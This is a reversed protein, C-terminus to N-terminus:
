PTLGLFAQVVPHSRVEDAAAPLSGPAVESGYLGAFWVLVNENWYVFGNPPECDELLPTVRFDAGIAWEARLADGDAYVWLAWVAYRANSGSDPGVFVIPEISAGACEPEFEDTLVLGPAPLAAEFTAFSHPVGDGGAGTAPAQARTQAATSSTATASAATATAPTPATATVTASAATAATAATAVAATGSTSTATATAPADDDDGGTCGLVAAAVLALAVTAALRRM